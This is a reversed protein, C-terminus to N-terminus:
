GIRSRMWVIPFLHIISQERLAVINPLMWPQMSKKPNKINIKM